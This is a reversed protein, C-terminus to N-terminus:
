NLIFVISRKLFAVHISTRNLRKYKCVVVTPILFCDDEKDYRVKM